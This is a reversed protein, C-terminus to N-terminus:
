AWGSIPNEAYPTESLRISSKTRLSSQRSPAKLRCTDQYDPQMDDEAGMSTDRGRVREQRLKNIESSTCPNSTIM